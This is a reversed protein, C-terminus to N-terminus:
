TLSLAELIVQSSRSLGQALEKIFQHIQYTPVVRVSTYEDSARYSFYDEIESQKASLEIDIVLDLAGTQQNAIGGKLNQTIIRSEPIGLEEHMEAQILITPLLHVGDIVCSNDFTGSPALEWLGKDLTVKRSRQAFIIGAECTLVGSCALPRVWLSSSAEADTVQAHFYKFETPRVTITKPNFDHVSFLHGNFLANDGNDTSSQWIQEAKDRVAAPIVLDEQAIRISLDPAFSHWTISRNPM